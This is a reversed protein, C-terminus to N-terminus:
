HQITCAVFLANEAVELGLLTKKRFLTYQVYQFYIMKWKWLWKESEPRNIHNKYVVNDLVFQFTLFMGVSCLKIIIFNIFHENM